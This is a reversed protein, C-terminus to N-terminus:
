DEPQPFVSSHYTKNNAIRQNSGIITDEASTRSMMAGWTDNPRNSKINKVYYYHPKEQLSTDFVRKSDPQQIPAVPTYNMYNYNNNNNNNNNSYNNNINKRRNYSTRVSNTNSSVSENDNNYM